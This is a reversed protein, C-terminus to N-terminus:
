GEHKLDKDKKWNRMTKDVMIRNIGIRASSNDPNYSLAINYQKGAEEFKGMNEWSFGIAYHVEARIMNNDPSYTLGTKLYDLARTYAKTRQMSLGMYYYAEWNRNNFEIAKECHQIAQKFKGRAYFNRAQVLHNNSAVNNEHPPAVVVTKKTEAPTTRIVVIKKACGGILLISLMLISISLRFM